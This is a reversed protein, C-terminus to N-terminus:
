SHNEEDKKRHWDFHEWISSHATWNTLSHEGTGAWVTKVSGFRHRWYDDTDAARGSTDRPVVTDHISTNDQDLSKSKLSSPRRTSDAASESDVRVYLATEGELMSELKKHASDKRTWQINHTSDTFAVARIRNILAPTILTDDNESLEDGSPSHDRLYRVFHAGSASHALVYIPVDQCSCVRNGRSRESPSRQLRTRAGAREDASLVIDDDVDADNDSGGRGDNEDGVEEFIRSISRKYTEMGHRDGRCNPDPIVCRMGRRKAEAVIPLATAPELATTMLHQRSFIGARVKGKGTTILLIPSSSDLDPDSTSTPTNGDGDDENRNENKHLRHGRPVMCRINEGLFEDDCVTVWVLDGEEAMREQAYEQCLRAVEEYMLGDAIYKTRNSLTIVVPKQSSSSSSTSADSRTAPHFHLRTVCAPCQGITGSASALETCTDHDEEMKKEDVHYDDSCKRSAAAHKACKVLRYEFGAARLGEEGKLCRTEDMMADIRDYHEEPTSCGALLARPKPGRRALATPRTDV